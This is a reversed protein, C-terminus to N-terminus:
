LVNSSRELRNWCILACALYLLSVLPSAVTVPPPPAAAAAASAGGGTDGGDCGALALLLGFAALALTSRGVMSARTM